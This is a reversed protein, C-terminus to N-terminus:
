ASFAEKAEDVEKATETSTVAERRGVVSVSVDEAALASCPSGTWSIAVTAAADLEPLEEGVPSTVKVFPVAVSPVVARLGAPTAARVEVNSGTPALEIM